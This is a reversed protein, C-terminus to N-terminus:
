FQFIMLLLNIWNLSIVRKIEIQKNKLKVELENEKNVLILMDNAINEDDFYDSILSGRFCNLLSCLIFLNENIKPINNNSIMKNFYEFKKIRGNVSEVIWRLKTM